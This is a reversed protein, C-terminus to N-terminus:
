TLGKKRKLDGMIRQYEIEFTATGEELNKIKSRVEEDLEGGVEMHKKLIPAIKKRLETDDAYIEDVNKSHFLINMIQELLYPLIDDSQPAAKEKAVQNRLKSLQAYPLGRAELRNKAEDAITREFRLYEKLVSEVDLVVENPQETEVDGESTLVRVIEESITPIKGSFLRM